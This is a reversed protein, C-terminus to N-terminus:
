FVTPGKVNKFAKYCPFSLNEPKLIILQSQSEKFWILFDNKTVHPTSSVTHSVNNTVASRHVATFVCKSLKRISDLLQDAQGCSFLTQGSCKKGCNNMQIGKLAM